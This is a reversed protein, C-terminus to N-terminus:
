NTAKADRVLVPQDRYVEAFVKKLAEIKPLDNYVIYPQSPHLTLYDQHYDEAPYFTKGSEITTAISKRFVKATNLQAIYAEAVKKQADNEAFITSRYQTGSDPGQRNLQTPDHAVSFYIQLLKGYSIVKPDYTIQVSEAHGTRGTGSAPYNATDKSGGAYGSVAKLVGRTHQFVGQVGWFCGGAIVATQPGDAAPLDSAPPPIVVADEAAATPGTLVASWLLCVATTLALPHLFHRPM